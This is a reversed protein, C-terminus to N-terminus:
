SEDRSADWQNYAQNLANAEKRVEQPQSPDDYDELQMLSHQSQKDVLKKEKKKFKGKSKDVKPQELIKFSKKPAAPLTDFTTKSAFNRQCFRALILSKRIM